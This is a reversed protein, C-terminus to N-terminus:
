NRFFSNNSEDLNQLIRLFDLIKAVPDVIWYGAFINNELSFIPFLGINESVDCVKLKKKILDKCFSLYFVDPYYLILKTKISSNQIRYDICSKTDYAFIYYKM